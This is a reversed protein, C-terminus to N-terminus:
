YSLLFCLMCRRQVTAALVAVEGGVFRGGGCRTGERGFLPRLDHLQCCGIAKVQSKCIRYTCVTEGCLCFINVTHLIKHPLNCFAYTIIRKYIM